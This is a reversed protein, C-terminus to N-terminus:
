CLSGHDSDVITGTNAQNRRPLLVARPLSSHDAVYKGVFRHGLGVARECSGVAAQHARRRNAGAGACTGLHVQKAQASRPKAQASVDHKNLKNM